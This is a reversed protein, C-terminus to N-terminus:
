CQTQVGKPHRDGRLRPGKGRRNVNMSAECPPMLVSSNYNEGSPRLHQLRVPEPSDQRAHEAQIPHACGLNATRRRGGRIQAGIAEVTQWTINRDDLLYSQMIAM